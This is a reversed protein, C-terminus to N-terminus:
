IHILSLNAVPVKLKDTKVLKPDFFTDWCMGRKDQKGANYKTRGVDLAKDRRISIDALTGDLDFIYSGCGPHIRVFKKEYNM